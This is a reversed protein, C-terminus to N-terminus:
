VKEIVKRKKRIQRELKELADKLIKIKNDSWGEAHSQFIGYNSVFRIEVRLLEHDGRKRTNTFSIKMNDVDKMRSSIRDIFFGIQKKAINKESDTLIDFNTLDVQFM